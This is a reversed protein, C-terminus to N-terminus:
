QYTFSGKHQTCRLLSAWHKETPQFFEMIAAARRHLEIGDLVHNRQRVLALGGLHCRSRNLRKQMTCENSWCESLCAYEIHSMQLSLYNRPRSVVVVYTSLETIAQSLLM